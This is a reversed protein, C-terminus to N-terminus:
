KISGVFWQSHCDIKINLYCLKIKGFLFVTFFRVAYTLGGCLFYAHIIM